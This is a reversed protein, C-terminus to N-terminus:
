FSGKVAEGGGRNFDFGRETFLTICIDIVQSDYLKGRGRIIEALAAEKGLAPRYPRHSTMAEVVDAVAVIRAELCIDDGKLQEPYGSGDLREHHQLITKAVPYSFNIDKMIHYGVRPHEMILSFEAESLPRPTTLLENPLQIKGIDHVIASMYVSQAHEKSLGMEEAIALSLIAVRIQHGSTYPDRAEVAKSIAIVTNRLSLSLKENASALADASEKRETIDLVTGISRLPKHNDDYLTECRENVWKISGDKMLLRHEIDYYGKSEVSTSYAKDVFDRDDPHVTDLFAEYSAGFKEPDMEFIRYVEESWVLNNKVLDLVWHGLHAIRQAEQHQQQTVEMEQRLRTIDNLINSRQETGEEYTRINAIATSCLNAISLALELQHEMYKPFALGEIELAGISTGLHKLRLLLGNGSKSWTYAEQSSSFRKLVSVRKRSSISKPWVDGVGGGKPSFAVFILSKPAYLQTFLQLMQEIIQKEPM